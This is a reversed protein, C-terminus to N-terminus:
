QLCKYTSIHINVSNLYLTSYQPNQIHSAFRHFSYSSNHSTLRHASRTVHSPLHTTIYYYIFASIWLTSHEYVYVEIDIFTSLTHLVIQQVAVTRDCKWIATFILLWYTQFLLFTCYLKKDHQQYEMYPREKFSLGEKEDYWSPSGFGICTKCVNNHCQQACRM